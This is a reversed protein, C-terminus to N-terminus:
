RVVASVPPQYWRKAVDGVCAWVGEEGKNEDDRGTFSTNFQDSLPNGSALFLDILNTFKAGLNAPWIWSGNGSVSKKHRVVWGYRFDGGDM